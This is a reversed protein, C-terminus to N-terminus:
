IIEPHRAFFKLVEDRDWVAKSYGNFNLKKPFDSYKKTLNYVWTKSKGGAYLAIDNKNWRPKQLLKDKTNAVIESKFEALVPKVVEEVVDKLSNRVAEKIIEDLGAIQLKAEM